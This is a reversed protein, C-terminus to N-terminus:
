FSVKPKKLKVRILYVIASIINFTDCCIGGITFNVLNHLIWIPSSVFITLWRISDPNDIWMAYTIVIMAVLTALSLVLQVFDVYFLMQILITSVAYMGCVLILWKIDRCRKKNVFIYARIISLFNLVAGTFAGIMIYNVSFLLGSLAVMIYYNRPKMCQLSLIGLLMAAIGLIQAIVDIM